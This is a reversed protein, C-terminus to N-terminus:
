GEQVFETATADAVAETPLPDKEIEHDGGGAEVVCILELVKEADPNTGPLLVTVTRSLTPHVAVCTNVIFGARTMGVNLMLKDSSVKVQLWGVTVAEATLVFEL